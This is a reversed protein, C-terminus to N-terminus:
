PAAILRSQITRPPAEQGLDNILDSLIMSNVALILLRQTCSHTRTRFRHYTQWDKTLLRQLPHSFFDITRHPSFQVLFLCHSFQDIAATAAYPPATAQHFLIRSSIFPNDSLLHPIQCSTHSSPSFPRRTEQVQISHEVRSKQTFPPDRSIISHRVPRSDRQASLRLVSLTLFNRYREAPSETAHTFRPFSPEVFLFISSAAPLLQDLILFLRGHSYWKKM